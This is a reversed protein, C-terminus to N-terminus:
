YEIGEIEATRVLAEEVLARARATTAHLYAHLAADPEDRNKCQDSYVEFASLSRVLDVLHQPCECEVTSSARALRRLEDRSLLRAPVELTESVPALAQQTGKDAASGAAPPNLGLVQALAHLEIPSRLLLVGSAALRAVDAARGFGYVVLVHETNATKRLNAVMDSTDAKVMQMELLLVDTPHLALDSTFRQFDTEALVVRSGPLPAESLRGALTEGYVALKLTGSALQTRAHNHDIHTAVRARLVETPEAAIKGIRDGRDVLAKLVTLRDVDDSSYQRQGGDSRRSKVAEHRREWVRLTHQSIGTLRSVTGISFDESDSM